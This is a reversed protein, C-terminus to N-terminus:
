KNRLKQYAIKIQTKVTNVSVGLLGSVEKYTMGEVVSMVFANRCNKPLTQIKERIFCIKRDFDKSQDIHNIQEEIASSPTSTIIEEKVTKQHRERVRRSRILNLSANKTATKLYAELNSDARLNHKNNWLYVFVEQVIDQADDSNDLYGASLFYLERAYKNYVKSFSRVDGGTLGDILLTDDKLIKEGM